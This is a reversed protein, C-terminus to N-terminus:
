DSKTALKKCEPCQVGRVVSHTTAEYQHGEDCKWLLKRKSSGVGVGIGDSLNVLKAAIDPRLDIMDPKTGMCGQHAIRQIEALEQRADALRKLVVHGRACRLRLTEGARVWRDGNSADALLPILDPDTDRLRSGRGVSQELRFLTRRVFETVRDHQTEGNWLDVWDVEKVSNATVTAAITQDVLYPLVQPHTTALDNVGVIIKKGDCVPCGTQSITRTRRGMKATWVHRADKECRWEAVTRWSYTLTDRLSQDALADALEPYTVSIPAKQNVLQKALKPDAERLSKM